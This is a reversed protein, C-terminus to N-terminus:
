MYLMLGQALMTEICYKAEVSQETSDVEQPFVMVYEFFYSYSEAMIVQGYSLKDLYAM